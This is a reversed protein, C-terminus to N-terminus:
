KGSYIPKLEPLNVEVRFESLKLRLFWLMRNTVNHEQRFTTLIHFSWWLLYTVFAVELLKKEIFACFNESDLVVTPDFLINDKMRAFLILTSKRHVEGKFRVSISNNKAAM